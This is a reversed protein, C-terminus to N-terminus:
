KARSQDNRRMLLIFMETVEGTAPTSPYPFPAPIGLCVTRGETGEQLTASLHTGKAHTIQWPLLKCTDAAAEHWWHAWQGGFPVDSSVSTRLPLLHGWHGAIGPGLCHMGGSQFSCHAAM